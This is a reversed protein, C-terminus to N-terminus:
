DRSPARDNVPEPAVRQGRVNCNIYDRLDAPRYKVSAGLKVFPLGRGILRNRRLTALSQGTIEAVRNEDLLKEFDPYVTEVNRAYCGRTACPETYYLM